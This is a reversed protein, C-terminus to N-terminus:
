LSLNLNHERVSIYKWDIIKTGFSHNYPPGKKWYIVFELISACKPCKPIYKEPLDEIKCQTISEQTLYGTYARKWKRCYAGYYRIMKFQKEPIHQIIASIFDYVEMTKNHRVGQNDKYWFSVEKGNYAYIRSNAIAPHRVYRGVYEAIGRKSTIRSEEPLYAYFGERYDRFLGNIFKVNESTHPLAKKINTLLQYQWTRRMAKALIFKQHVFNNNKDFGGETVLIHIHPKFGLDRGFPHLVVIAGALIRKRQKYSITDNLAKIASDMIVKYLEKYSQVIPWLRDPMSLVIHRHPVDLMGHSLRKAWKDTYNKGCNSCLRSNCGFYVMYIEDCEKCYYTFYGRKSDKCSLMKDVEKLEVDRIKDRNFYRYCDWNHNDQFIEKVGIRNNRHNNIDSIGIIQQMNQDVHM